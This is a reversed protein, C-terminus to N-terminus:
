HQRRLLWTLCVTGFTSKRNSFSYKWLDYYSRNNLLKLSNNTTRIDGNRNLTLNINEDYKRTLIKFVEIM